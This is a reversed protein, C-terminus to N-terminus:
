PTRTITLRSSCAPSNMRGTPVPAGARRQPGNSRNGQAISLHVSERMVSEGMTQLPGARLPGDPATDM